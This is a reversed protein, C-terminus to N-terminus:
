PSPRLAPHARALREVVPELALRTAAQAEPNTLRRLPVGSFWPDDLWADVIMVRGRETLPALAELAGLAHTSSAPDAPLLNAFAWCRPASDLALWGLAVRVRLGEQAHAVFTQAPLPAEALERLLGPLGGPVRLPAENLSLCVGPLLATLERLRRRLESLEVAHAGFIEPDPKFTLGVGGPGAPGIRELADLPEGRSFRRRYLGEPLDTRVEVHESLAVVAALSTRFLPGLLKPRPLFYSGHPQGLVADFPSVGLRPDVQVSLGRGEDEVTWAGDEHATVRVHHADGALQRDLSLDLVMHLMNMLGRPGTDGLYMGPRKRILEPGSLVQIAYATQTPRPPTPDSM